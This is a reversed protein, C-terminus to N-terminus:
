IVGAVTGIQVAPNGAVIALAEVNKTVVSGAGIVAGSGVTVGKLVFSGAGIFVDDGILIANKPSAEPLPLYRRRLLHVPHFDTDVITVNAGILCRDGIVISNASCISGGSIGVHAGIKISAGQVMTKVVVPHSLGLATRKTNSILHAGPGIQITTQPGAVILPRGYLRVGTSVTLGPKTMGYARALILSELVVLKRLTARLM